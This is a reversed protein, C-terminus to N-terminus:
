RGRTSELYIVILLQGKGQQDQDEIIKIKIKEPGSIHLFFGTIFLIELNIARNYNVDENFWHM